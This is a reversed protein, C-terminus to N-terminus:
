SGSPAGIPLAIQVDTLVCGEQKLSAVTEFERRWDCVVSFDHSYHCLVAPASPARQVWVFRM